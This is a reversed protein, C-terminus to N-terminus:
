SDSGRFLTAAALLVVGTAIATGASGLGIAILVSGLLTFLLAGGITGVVGGEGGEFTTGGVVVAAISNLLLDQGAGLSGQGVFGALFLGGLAACTGCFVFSGVQVLGISVGSIRAAESSIGRAYIHRGIWTRNLVFWAGIYLLGIIYIDIPIGLLTQSSLAAIAEPLSGTPAGGSYVLAAGTLFFGTGLTVVFPSARGYVVAVGNILGVAVGVLLCLAVTAIPGFRVAFAGAALVNVLGVVGGVSLDFSRGIILITQGLAVALLPAALRLFSPIASPQAVGPAVSLGILYVAALVLWVAKTRWFGSDSLGRLLRSGGIYVTM